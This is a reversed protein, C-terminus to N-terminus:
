KQRFSSNIVRVFTIIKLKYYMFILAVFIFITFYNFYINLIKWNSRQILELITSLFLNFVVFFYILFVFSLLFYFIYVLM